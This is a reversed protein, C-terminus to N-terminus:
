PRTREQLSGMRAPNRAQFGFVYRLLPPEEGANKRFTSIDQGDAQQYADLQGDKRFILIQLSRIATDHCNGLTAKSEKDDANNPSHSGRGSEARVHLECLRGEATALSENSVTEKELRCASVLTMTLCTIFFLTRKM